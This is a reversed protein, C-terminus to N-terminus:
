DKNESIGYGTRHREKDARHEAIDKSIAEIKQSLNSEVIILRHGVKQIEEKLEVRTTEIKETLMQHGEVVIDLKHQFDEHLIGIQHKFMTEIKKLDAEDM